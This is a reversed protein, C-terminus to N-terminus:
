PEQTQLKVLDRSCADFDARHGTGPKSGVPFKGGRDLGVFILKSLHGRQNASSYHFYMHIDPLVDFFARQQGQQVTGVEPERLGRVEFRTRLQVLSFQGVLPSAIEVLVLRDAESLKLLTLCLQPSSARFSSLRAIPELQQPDLRLFNLAQLTLLRNPGIDLDTRRELATDDHPVDGLSLDHVRGLLQERDGIERLHPDDAVDRFLVHMENVLVLCDLHDDRGIGM